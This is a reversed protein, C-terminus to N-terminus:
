GDAEDEQLREPDAKPWWPATWGINPVWVLGWESNREVLEMLTWTQKEKLFRVPILWGKKIPQKLERELFLFAAVYPFAQGNEWMRLLRPLQHRRGSFDAPSLIVTKGPLMEQGKFKRLKVEIPNFQLAYSSAIDYPKAVARALDPWKEAYCGQAKLGRVLHRTFDKETM